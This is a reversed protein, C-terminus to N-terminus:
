ANVMKDFITAHADANCVRLAFQQAETAIKERLESSNYLLEIKDALEAHNTPTYLLGTKGDDILELSGGTNAAIVPLGMKQAEITVRGFAEFRSCVLAVHHERIFDQPNPNFSAFTVFDVLGLEEVLKKLYNTYDDSQYGLLTLTINLGKQRCLGIARIADEQGKAKAIRGTLIVRLEGNPGLPLNRIEFNPMPVPYYTLYLKRRDIQKSHVNYMAKSNVLVGKSFRSIFRRITGKSAWFYFGHDEFGFEHLYWYHPLSSFKAALAGVPIVVTNTLVASCEHRKVVQSIKLASSFFGLLRRIYLKLTPAKHETSWWDFAIIEVKVGISELRSRMPGDYPLIAMFQYGKPQVAMISELGGLESGGINPSPFLVAIKM